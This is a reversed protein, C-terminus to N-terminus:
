CSTNENLARWLAEASSKITFKNINELSRIGEIAVKEPNALYYNIANEMAGEQLPDIIIGNGEIMDKAGAWKSCIIPMAFHMAENVVLGWADRISPFVFIDNNAYEIYKDHGNLHGKFYVNAGAIRKLNQMEPGDGVITLEISDPPFKNITKLIIDVRKPARLYGTYLLKLKKSKRKPFKNILFQPNIDLEAAQPIHYIKDEQISWKRFVDATSNSFALYGDAHYLKKRYWLKFLDVAKGYLPKDPYMDNHMECWIFKKGTPRKIFHLASFINELHELIVINKYRKTDFKDIESFTFPGIKKSSVHWSKYSTPQEKWKREEEVKGLYLVEIPTIQNLQEFLRDRYPTWYNQIILSTM